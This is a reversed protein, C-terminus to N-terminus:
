EYVFAEGTVVELGCQSFLTEQKPVESPEWYHNESLRYEWGRQPTHRWDERRALTSWLTGDRDSTRIWINGEFRVLFKSELIAAIEKSM